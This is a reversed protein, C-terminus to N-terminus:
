LELHVTIYILVYSVSAVVSVHFMNSQDINRTCELLLTVLLIQLIIVEPDIGLKDLSPPVNPEVPIAM